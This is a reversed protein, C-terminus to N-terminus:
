NTKIYGLETLITGSKEGNKIETKSKKQNYTIYAFIVSGVVGIASIVSAIIAWVEM